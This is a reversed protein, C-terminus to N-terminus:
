LPPKSWPRSWCHSPRLSAGVWPMHSQHHCFFAWFASGPLADAVDCSRLAEALLLLMVFGRYVDVSAVRGPLVPSIAPPASTASTASVASVAGAM